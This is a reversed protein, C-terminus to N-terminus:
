ATLVRFIIVVVVALISWLIIDVVGIGSEKDDSKPQEYSKEKGQSGAQSPAGMASYEQQTPREIHPDVYRERM